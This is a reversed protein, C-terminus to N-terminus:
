WLYSEINKNHELFIKKASFWLFYLVCFGLFSVVCFGLFWLVFKTPIVPTNNFDKGGKNYYVVLKDIVHSNYKKLKRYYDLDIGQDSLIIVEPKFIQEHFIISQILSIYKSSLASAYLKVDKKLNLSDFLHETFIDFIGEALIIKNSNKNYGPLKYYDLFNNDQIKYKYFKMSHSDDINRFIVTSKNETFFGIFNNQLYDKLRFITEYVPLRNIRLFEEFDYILGKIMTTSINAFKLRQKVYLEKLMFKSSNISPLSIPIQKIEKDVFLERRHSSEQLKTKDIFKDSIDHGELTKILKGLTGSKECNAHFCHFIPIDLSIYMHYHDKDQNYECWPCPIIINKSTTKIHDGLKKELYPIFSDQYIGIM